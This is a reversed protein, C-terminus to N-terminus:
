QVSLIDLLRNLLTEDTKLVKGTQASVFSVKKISVHILGLLKKDDIGNVRFTPENSLLGLLIGAQTDASESAIRDIFKLRLLNAVAQDPLVAVDKTGAPTTVTLTNTTPNISLPFHTEAEFEGRRIRLLNGSGSAVHIGQDELADNIDDLTEDELEVETGDEHKVKIKLKGDENELEFRGGNSDLRIRTRNNHTRVELEKLNNLSFQSVDEQEPTETPEIEDEVEDESERSEIDSNNSDDSNSSGSGSNSDNSTSDTSGESDSGKDALLASTGLVSNQSNGILNKFGLLSLAVITTVLLFRFGFTSYISKQKHKAM